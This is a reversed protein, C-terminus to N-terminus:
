VPRSGLRLPSRRNKSPLTLPLNCICQRQYFALVAFFILCKYVYRPLKEESSSSKTKGTTSAISIKNSLQGENEEESADDEEDDEMSEGGQSSGKQAQDLVGSSPLLMTQSPLVTPLSACELITM